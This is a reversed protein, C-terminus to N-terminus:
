LLTQFIPTCAGSRDCTEGFLLVYSVLSCLAFSALGIKSQMRGYPLELEKYIEDVMTRMDEKTHGAPPSPALNLIFATIVAASVLRPDWGLLFALVMNSIGLLGVVSIWTVPRRALFFVFNYSQRYLVSLIFTYIVFKAILWITDM